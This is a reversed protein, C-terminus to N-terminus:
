IAETFAFGVYCTESSPIGRFIHVRSKSEALQPNRIASCCAQYERTTFDALVSISPLPSPSPNGKPLECLSTNYYSISSLFLGVLISQLYTSMPNDNACCPSEINFMVRGEPVDDPPSTDTAIVNEERLHNNHHKKKTTTTTKEREKKRSAYM